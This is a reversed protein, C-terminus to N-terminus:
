DARRVFSSLTLGRECRGTGVIIVGVDADAGKVPNEPTLVCFASAHAPQVRLVCAAARHSSPGGSAMLAPTYTNYLLHLGEQTHPTDFLSSRRTLRTSRRTKHM